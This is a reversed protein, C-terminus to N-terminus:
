SDAGATFGTTLRDVAAARPVRAADRAWYGKGSPRDHRLYQVGTCRAIAVGAAGPGTAKFTGLAHGYRRALRYHDLKSKKMPRM